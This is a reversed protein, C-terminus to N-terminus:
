ISTNRFIAVEVKRETADDTLPISNGSQETGDLSIHLGEPGQKQTITIHYQTSGHQYKITVDAWEQPICPEIFLKDGHVKIGLLSETILNYMWGASGTYWSWGGRGIHPAVAYVDGALVYPEVQYVSVENANRGHNVPNILALLEWASKADKQKALAMILWIASHTYQGGNERVGAPYGKIYGPDLASKDFPPNLLKILGNDKDVLRNEASDMAISIKAPDGAGSLVSWSQAISDIQCEPNEKSGLPTGDDFYARRYWSGDWANKDINEKLTKAERECLTEIDMDKRLIAVEKFRTLIDYLFFALWVSEGKGHRGVRDMGDNWDGTGMLPLGHSGFQLGNKIARVCHEYITTSETSIAPLEYYSEEGPNLLRGEIFPVSTDLVANDGSTSLYRCLVYPLWLFDDSIRTRVGRGLPPHWWHQVDGQKYQRSACLLIQQRALAPETRTLAIVDQLQDRFGFAGSSQYFGSRAWLRCALTQYILWGNAMINTAPDPTEVQIAGTTKAWYAKVNELAQHANYAGKFHKVVERMEDFNKGAGLKFIVEREQGDFLDFSVQIAACPDLGVGLKGSLKTRSMAEPNRLTGNRGIFEMRDTTFTRYTEDTDFFAMRDAFENSYPNKALLAGTDSDIESVIHM